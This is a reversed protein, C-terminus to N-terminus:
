PWLQESCCFFQAITRTQRLECDILQVDLHDSASSTAIKQCQVLRPEHVISDVPASRRATADHLCVKLFLAGSEHNLFFINGFCYCAMIHFINGKYHYARLGEWSLVNVEDRSTYKYMRACPTPPLCLVRM